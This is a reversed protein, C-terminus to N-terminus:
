EVNHDGQQDISGVLETINLEVMSKIRSALSIVLKRLKDRHSTKNSDAQRHLMSVTAESSATSSILYRFSLEIMTPSSIKLSQTVMTRKLDIKLNSFM